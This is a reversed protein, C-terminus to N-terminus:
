LVLKYTLIDLNKDLIIEQVIYHFVSRICDSRDRGKENEKIKKRSNKWNVIRSRIRKQYVSDAITPASVSDAMVHGPRLHGMQTRAASEQARSM